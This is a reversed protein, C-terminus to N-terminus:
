LGGEGRLADIETRIGLLEFKAKFAHQFIFLAALGVQAVSRLAHALVTEDGTMAWQTVATTGDETELQMSSFTAHPNPHGGFSISREYLEDVVDGLRADYRRIVAKVESIRFKSKMANMDAESVHRNTFVTELAPQDFIALGYAAYELVSRMMVFAEVTQGALALGAAAKLAYQCRLLLIGSMVPNVNVLNKGALVLCNDIRSIKGYWDIFRERNARRNSDAM